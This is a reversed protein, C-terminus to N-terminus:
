SLALEKMVTAERSDDITPSAEVMPVHAVCPQILVHSILRYRGATACLWKLVAHLYVTGRSVRTYSRDSLGAVGTGSYDALALVEEAREHLGVIRTSFRGYTDEQM